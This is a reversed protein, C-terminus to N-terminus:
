FRIDVSCRLPPYSCNITISLRQSQQNGWQQLSNRLSAVRERDGQSLAGLQVVRGDAGVVSLEVSAKQGRQDLAAVASAGNLALMVAACGVAYKKM